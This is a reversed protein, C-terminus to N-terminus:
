EAQLWEYEESFGEGLVAETIFKAVRRENYCRHARRWGAAAVERWHKDDKHYREIKELLDDESDYYAVEEESFLLHMQPTRPMLVLVGNGALQALRDSSYLPIDTARSLNLGMKSSAVVDILERGGIRARGGFGFFGCRMRESLAQLRALLATRGGADTGIFLLDYRHADAAFARASHVSADVVNPLYYHRPMPVALKQAVYSPATTAFFADLYPAKLRLHALSHAEFPDVWWQGIKCHPLAERVAALTQPLLLECHGLLLIDPAYARVQQLLFDNMRQAGLKKGLHLPAMQRAIDRYSFEWVNHGNRVLGNSIARDTSYYRGLHSGHKRKGGSLHWSLNCVHMVRLPVGGGLAGLEAM